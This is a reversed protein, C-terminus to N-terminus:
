KNLLKSEIIAWNPRTGGYIHNLEFPIVETLQLGALALLSRYEAETREASGFLLLMSLDSGVVAPADTVRKPMIQEILLLRSDDRMATRCNRLIQIAHDDDWDHIINSLLYLDRGPPIPDHFFDGAVTQCRDALGNQALNHQAEAVVEPVDFVIGQSGPHAHLIIALLTGNGGGVDVITDAQSFDYTAVVDAARENGGQSMVDNFATGLHPHQALYDFFPMGLIHDFSPQGTQVTRLMGRGVHYSVEGTYIILNYLSDLHDSRLFEGLPSLRFGGDDEELLLDRAVMVRLFRFLAQPHANVAQALEHAQKPGDALHDAIGLKVLTYLEQTRAFGSIMRRLIDSPSQQPPIM